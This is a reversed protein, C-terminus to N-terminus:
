AIILSTKEIYTTLEKIKEKGEFTLPAKIEKHTFSTDREAHRIFIIKWEM